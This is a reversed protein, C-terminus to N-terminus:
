IVIPEDGDSLSIGDKQYYQGSGPYIENNIPKFPHYIKYNDSFKDFDEKSIFIAGRTRLDEENKSVLASYVSDDIINVLQEIIHYPDTNNYRVSSVVKNALASVKAREIFAESFLDRRQEKHSKTDEINYYGSKERHEAVAAVLGFYGNEEQDDDVLRRNPTTM